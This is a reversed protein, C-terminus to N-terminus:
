GVDTIQKHAGDCMPAHGTKKCGCLYVTKSAPAEYPVPTFGSGGHSGDCWPQGKSRGCSCWLYSRGEEVEVAIPQNTNSTATSKNM